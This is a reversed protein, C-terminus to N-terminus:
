ALRTYKKFNLGVLRYGPFYTGVFTKMFGRFFQAERFYFIECYKVEHLAMYSSLAEPKEKTVCEYLISSISQLIQSEQMSLNIFFYRCKSLIYMYTVKILPKM